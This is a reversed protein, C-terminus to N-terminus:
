SSILLFQLSMEQIFLDKEDCKKKVSLWGEYEDYYFEKGNTLRINIWIAHKNSRYQQLWKDRNKKM